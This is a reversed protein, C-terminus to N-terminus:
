HDIIVFRIRPDAAATSDRTRLSFEPGIHVYTLEDKTQQRWVGYLAPDPLAGERSSIPHVSDVKCGTLGLLRVLLSLFGIGRSSIM